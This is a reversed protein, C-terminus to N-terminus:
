NKWCVRIQKRNSVKKHPVRKEIMVGYTKGKRLSPGGPVVVSITDSRMGWKKIKPHFHVKKGTISVRNFARTIKKNLTLIIIGNKKVCKGQHSINVIKLPNKDAAFSIGSIILGLMTIFLTTKYNSNKSIRITM